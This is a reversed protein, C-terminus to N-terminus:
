RATSGGHAHDGHPAETDAQALEANGGGSGEHSHGEEGTARDGGDGQRPRAGEGGGHAHGDPEATLTQGDGHRHGGTPM